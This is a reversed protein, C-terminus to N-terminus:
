RGLQVQKGTRASEYIALILDVAARAQEGTVMPDRGERVADIMDQVQTVHGEIGISRPDSSSSDAKDHLAMTQAIEEETMLSSRLDVIKEGDVRLTGFEGHFELRHDMGPCVSTTGEIVGFAGSAYQLIAVSTDEVEIKRVLPAAHATITSVPGMIWQMLDVCHVGQNMLAGGGDLKWTGRWGASAYYEPSRYYKLYADGLVMKGLKGSQVIERIRKMIPSTRRQFICGLKVGRERCARIMANMAQDTVDLPKESLVHIGAQAAAMAMEAHLGSPTCVSLIDLRAERLMTPLDTFATAGYEKAFTEAKEPIIDCVAVLDAGSALTVAKAHWPGIVGCGVIGYRLQKEM